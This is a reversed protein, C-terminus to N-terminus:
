DYPTKAIMHLHDALKAACQEVTFEKAYNYANIILKARLDPDGILQQIAESIATESKSKVLIGHKNHEWLAPIGGAPSTIVPCGNAAAEWIVHPFGENFYTPLVFIDAQRYFEFLGEGYEVMGHWRIRDSVALQEALETYHKFDESSYPGLVDLEVNDLLNLVKILELIGKEPIVRGCFLLKIPKNIPKDLQDVFETISISNTPMFEAPVGLVQQIEDVLLPSNATLLMGKEAMQKIEMPRRRSRWFNLMGSPSLKFSAKNEIISGVLLFVKHRTSTAEWVAWQRPTIGRIILIDSGKSAQACVNRLRRMRGFRDWMNGSAGLSHLVVNGKDVCTDQRSSQKETQYLLLGIEDFHDALENVWRGIFSPLWIQGESDVYAVAHHHILLRM